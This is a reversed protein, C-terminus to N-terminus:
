KIRQQKIATILEAAQDKFSPHAEAKQALELAKDYEKANFYGAAGNFLCTAKTRRTQLLQTKKKRVM